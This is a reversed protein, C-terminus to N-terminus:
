HECPHCGGRADQARACCGHPECDVWPGQLLKHITVRSGQSISDRLGDVPSGACAQLPALFKRRCRRRWGHVSSYYHHSANADVSVVDKSWAEGPIGYWATSRAYGSEALHDENFILLLAAALNRDLSPTNAIDFLRQFHKQNACRSM